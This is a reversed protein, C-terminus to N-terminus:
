RKLLLQGRQPHEVNNLDKVSIVYIYTGAPALSGDKLKGDWKHEIDKSRFIENSNGDYITMEFNKFNIGMPKLDDNVRDGNPTFVTPIYFSFDSRSQQEHPIGNDVPEHVFDFDNETPQEDEVSFSTNISVKGTSAQPAVPPTPQFKEMSNNEDKDTVAPPVVEQKSELSQKEVAGTEKEQQVVPAVSEHNNNNNEPQRVPASNKVVAPNVESLIVPEFSNGADSVVPQVTNSALENEKSSEKGSNYVLATVVVATAAVFLGAYGWLGMSKGASAANGAAEPSPVPTQLQQSINAWANPNVDAEFNSFTEKFLQEINQERM